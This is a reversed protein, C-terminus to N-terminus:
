KLMNEVVDTYDKGNWRIVGASADIITVVVGDIEEEYRLLSYTETSGYPSNNEIDGKQTQTHVGTLRYKVSEHQIEGKPVNYRQRVTRFEQTHKGPNSLYKCNVGNNHHVTYDTAELHTINPMDVDMAMGAASIKTTPHKFTPLGVKTVDEVVRKGDILRYGEVNNYVKQPM